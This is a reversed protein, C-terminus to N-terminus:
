RDEEAGGKDSTDANAFTRTIPSAFMGKKAENFWIIHLISNELTWNKSLLVDFPPNEYIWFECRHVRGTNAHWQLNIYGESVYKSDDATRSTYRERQILKSDRKISLEKLIEMDIHSRSSGTDCQAFAVIFKGEM